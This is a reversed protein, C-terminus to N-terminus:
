WAVVSDAEFILDLLQAHSLRRESGPATSEDEVVRYVDGPLPSPPDAAGPLLVVSVRTGPERADEAIVERAVTDALDRVLHLRHAM